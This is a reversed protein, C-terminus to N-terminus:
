HNVSYVMENNDYISQFLIKIVLLLLSQKQHAVRHCKDMHYVANSMSSCLIEQFASITVILLLYRINSTIIFKWTLM